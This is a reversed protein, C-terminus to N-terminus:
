PGRSEPLELAFCDANHFDPRGPPHALAWYSLRGGTEEVVATLGVRWGGEPLGSVTARLEIADPGRQVEIRPELEAPRMGERYGDFRYAAWESSPAFNLEFYGAGDGVFAEFCTRRWLEDTRLSAAPPPVVVDAMGEMVFRLTLVDGSRRAEAAVGAVSSPFDPHRTLQRM